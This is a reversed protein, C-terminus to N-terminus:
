DESAVPLKKNGTKNRQNIKTTTPKTQNPKTKSVPDQQTTRASRFSVIYVVLRAEFECLDLQKQTRLAPILPACCLGLRTVINLYPRM